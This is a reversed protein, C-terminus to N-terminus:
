QPKFETPNSNFVVKLVKLRGERVCEALKQANREEIRTFSGQCGSTNEKLLCRLLIV